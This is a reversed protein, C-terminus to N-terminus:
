KAAPVCLRPKGGTASDVRYLIKELVVFQDKQSTIKRLLEPDSPLVGSELFKVLARYQPDESQSQILELNNDLEPRDTTEETAVTAVQVEPEEGPMPDHLPSRSLADANSNKCGPHYVIPVDLEVVSEAWRALKGSPLKTKLISKMPAHDSFVTVRHGYLYARFHQLGWVIALTELETIGYRQEHKSM